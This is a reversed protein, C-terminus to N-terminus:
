ETFIDVQTLGLRKFIDGKIYYHGGIQILMLNHFYLHCGKCLTILNDLEHNKNETEGSGDRHHVVLSERGTIEWDVPLIRKSCLQCTFDDRELAAWWNGGWVKKQREKWSPRLSSKVERLNTARNDCEDSCYRQGLERREVAIMCGCVICLKKYRAKIPRRANHYRINCKATCSRKRIDSTTFEKGCCMCKRTFKARGVKRAKIVERAATQQCGRKCYLQSIKVPIFERGCYLCEKERM